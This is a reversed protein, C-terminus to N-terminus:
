TCDIHGRKIHNQHTELAEHSCTHPHQLIRKWSRLSKIKENPYDKALNPSIEMEMDENSLIGSLDTTDWKALSTQIEGLSSKGEKDKTQSKSSKELGKPKPYFRFDINEESYNKDLVGGNMILSKESDLSPQIEILALKSNSLSIPVVASNPKLNSIQNESESFVQNESTKPPTDLEANTAQLNLARVLPLQLVHPCSLSQDKGDDNGEIELNEEDSVEDINPQSSSTKGKVM